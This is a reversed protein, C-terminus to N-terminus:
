GMWFGKRHTIGLVKHCLSCFYLYRKGLFGALPKFYVKTIQGNCHPCVPIIDQREETEIM